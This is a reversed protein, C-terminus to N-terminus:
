SGGAWRPTSWARARRRERPHRQPAGGQRADVRASRARGQGHQVPASNARWTCADGRELDDRHRRAAAHADVAARAELVDVVGFAHTRWVREIEAPDTDAVTQGRSAIGANNVLIDVAGFDALVARSWRRARPATTSRRRTRSPAGASRRSRPSPRARGRRRGQPLQGRRRRRRRRPRARDGQRDRPRRRDGARRTRGARSGQSAM